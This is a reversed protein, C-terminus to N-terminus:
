PHNKNEIQSDLAEGTLACLDNLEVLQPDTLCVGSYCAGRLPLAHGLRRGDLEHWLRLTHELEGRLAARKSSYEGLVTPSPSLDLGRLYPNSVSHEIGRRAAAVQGTRESKVVATYGVYRRRVRGDVARGEVLYVVYLTM